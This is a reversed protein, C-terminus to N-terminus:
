QLLLQVIYKTRFERKSKDTTARRSYDIFEKDEWSLENGRQDLFMEFIEDVRNLKNTMQYIQGENFDTCLSSKMDTNPLGYM